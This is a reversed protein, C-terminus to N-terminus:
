ADEDEEYGEEEITCGGCTGMISRGHHCVHHLHEHMPNTLEEFMGDPLEELRDAMAGVFTEIYCVLKMPAPYPDVDYFCMHPEAIRHGKRVYVETGEPLLELWAILDERKM